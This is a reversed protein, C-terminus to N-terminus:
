FCLNMIKLVEPVTDKGQRCYEGVGGFGTADKLSLGLAMEKPLNRQDWNEM